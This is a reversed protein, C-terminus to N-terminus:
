KLFTKFATSVVVDILGNVFRDLAAKGLGKRKLALMEASDKKSAVLWEFDSKSLDERALLTTWREIDEKSDELFKKGDKIAEKSLGKWSYAAFEELEKTLTRIFDDFTPM